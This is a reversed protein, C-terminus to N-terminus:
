GDNSNAYLYICMYSPEMACYTGHRVASEPTVLELGLRVVYSVHLNISINETSMRRNSISWSITETTLNIMFYKWHDNEEKRQNLVPLQWNLLQVHVDESQTSCTHMTEFHDTSFEM